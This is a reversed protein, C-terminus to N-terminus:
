ILGLKMRFEVYNNTNQFKYIPKGDINAIAYGVMKYLPNITTINDIRLMDPVIYYDSSPTGSVEASAFIRCTKIESASFDASTELDKIPIEAVIYRNTLDVSLYKLKAKAYAQGTVTENKYFEILIRLTTPNTSTSATKNMLTFAFKLVDDPSNNSIDFNVSNLHIHTGTASWAAGSETITSTNGRIFIKRNLFRPGENRGTRDTGRLVPNSTSLTFVPETTDFNTTTGLTDDESPIPLISSATHSEWNEQFNFIVKSDSNPALNNAGASWLGIETIDYRNEAPLEASFVIKTEGAEDVFGKSVIPVRVMECDLETKQELNLPLPDSPLLPDAGCGIAVHTAFAPAEGLLYKAILEKGDNTIM